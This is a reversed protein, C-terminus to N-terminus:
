FITGSWIVLRGERGMLILHLEEAGAEFVRGQVEGRGGGRACGDAWDEGVGADKAGNEALVEGPGKLELNGNASVHKSPDAVLARSELM